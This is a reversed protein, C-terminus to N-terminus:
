SGRSKPRASSLLPFALLFGEERLREDIGGDCVTSGTGLDDGSRGVRRKENDLDRTVELARLPPRSVCVYPFTPAGAEAGQHGGRMEGSLGHM